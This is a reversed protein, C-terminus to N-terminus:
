RDGGTARAKGGQPKESNAASNTACHTASHVPASGTGSVSGIGTGPPREVALADRARIRALVEPRVREAGLVPGGGLRIEPLTSRYRDGAAGYYRAAGAHGVRLDKALTPVHNNNERNAPIRSAGSSFTSSDKNQENGNTEVPTKEAVRIEADRLDDGASATATRAKGEVAGNPNEQEASTEKKASDSFSSERGCVGWSSGRTLEDRASADSAAGSDWDGEREKVRDLDLNWDQAQTGELGQRSDPKAARASRALNPVNSNSNAAFPARRGHTDLLSSPAPAAQGAGWGQAKQVPPSKEAGNCPSKADLNEAPEWRQARPSAARPAAAPEMAPALTNSRERPPIKSQAFGAMFEGLEGRPVTPALRELRARWSPPPLRGPQDSGTWHGYRKGNAEWTFLLGRAAFEDFIQELREITLSDRIAAVRGWIVRLNTLEFSGNCDALGYLWAYEAQAWPACAALKDSSWLADFDLVRKPM